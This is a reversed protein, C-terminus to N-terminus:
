HLTVIKRAIGNRSEATEKSTNKGGSFTLTSYQGYHFIKPTALDVEQRSGAEAIAVVNEVNFPNNKVMLVFGAAPNGVKGFLKRSLPSGTGLVLLSADRIDENTIDEEEKIAFGEQGFAALLSAYKEKQAAGYVVIRKRSGMLRSIVPPLEDASLRRMVENDGDIVLETPREAVALRFTQKPKDVIISYSKIEKNGALIKVHLPLRYPKSKQAIVVSVTPVGNSVIFKANGVELSPEGKRDLWQSFFWNLRRGSEKEFISEIDDWTVVRWKNERIFTRLSKYFVDKGLLRELMSFLMMGKGYGIAESSPGSRVYFQRLPFDNGANVYSQYKVLANKRYQQGKGQLQAYHYDSMYVTIAELWNGKEFDAYVYNGFWQHTIEHGLSEDLVFPLHLIEAGILTFTPMSLGTPFINGVISFRKYAYPVLLKDDMELYKKAYAMYDNSLGADKPFFYTYIDVGGFSAKTQVYSGAVLDIGPVPHPFDFSYLNGGTTKVFTIEDAESVATFGDPVVAKLRYLALGMVQPYWRGTLCIGQNSIMSGSLAGEGLPSTEFAETFAREYRIELRGKQSIKLWGQSGAAYPQGNFSVYIIRLNELSIEAPGPLDIRADGKILNEKLDFSVFLNYEPYAQANQEAAYGQWELAKFILISLIVLFLLNALKRTM